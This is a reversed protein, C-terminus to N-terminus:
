ALRALARKARLLSDSREAAAAPDWSSSVFNCLHLNYGSGPKTPDDARVMAEKVARRTSRTALKLVERKADPLAEPATPVLNVAVGLAKAFGSRDAMVWVEAESVALRLMFGDVPGHPLWDDLM